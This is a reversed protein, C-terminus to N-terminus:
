PMDGRFGTAREPPPLTAGAPLEEITGPHPAVGVKKLKLAEFRAVRERGHESTDVEVTWSSPDNGPSQIGIRVRKLDPHFVRKFKGDSNLASDSLPLAVTILTAAPDVANEVEGTITIPPLEDPRGYFAALAIFALGFGFFGYAPYRSQIKLVNKFEVTVADPKDSVQQLTVIGKYFLLLGGLVMLVGCVAGLLVVVDDTGM